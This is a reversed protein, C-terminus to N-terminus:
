WMDAGSQSFDDGPILNSSVQNEVPRSRGGSGNRQGCQGGTFMGIDDGASRKSVSIRM